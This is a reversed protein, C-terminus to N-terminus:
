EVSPTEHNDGRDFSESSPRSLVYSFPYSTICFLTPGRHTVLALLRVLLYIMFDHLDIHPRGAEGAGAFAL